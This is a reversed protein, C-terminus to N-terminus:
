HLLEVDLTKVTILFQQLDAFARGLDLADDDGAVDSGSAQLALGCGPLKM